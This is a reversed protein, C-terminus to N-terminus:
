MGEFQLEGETRPTEQSIRTTGGSLRLEIERDLVELWADPPPSANSILNAAAVNMEIGPHNAAPRSCPRFARPSTPSAPLLMSTAPPPATRATEMRTSAASSPTGM